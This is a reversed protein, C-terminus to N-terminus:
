SRSDKRCAKRIRISNDNRAWILAKEEKTM